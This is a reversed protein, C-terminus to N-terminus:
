QKGDAHRLALEIVHQYIRTDVLPSLMDAFSLMGAALDASNQFSCGEMLAVLLCGCVRLPTWPGSEAPAVPFLPVKGAHEVHVAAPLPELASAGLMGFQVVAAVIDRSTAEELLSPVTIAPTLNFTPSQLAVRIVNCLAAAAAACTNAAVKPSLHLTPLARLIRLLHTFLGRQLWRPLNHRKDATICSSAFCLKAQLDPHTPNSLVHLVQVASCVVNTARGM